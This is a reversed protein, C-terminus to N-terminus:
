DKLDRIELNRFLIEAGELQLAIRGKKLPQWSGNVNECMDTVRNNVKGNIIYTAASGRVIVEIVNWGDQEALPNRVVRRIGESEGQVFLLGGQNLELFVPEPPQPNEAKPASIWNTTKPDVPATVRTYVTYVDGVDGEQIQCEVSRPWVVDAGVVHYLVGSDRKWKARPAFRKGGWKYELRLHYNAYDKETAIYGFPQRSNAEAERYMHIMGDAVQVLHNTDENKNGQGLWVYWGDLNKGNFLSRWGEERNAASTGSAEAALHPAKSKEPLPSRFSYRGSGVEFMATSDEMRIFKVGEAKLVPIGSETITEASKAPVYVTATTNAPIKTDLHFQDDEIKWDSVIRGRISDYEGKAWTFGPGPLPRIVFHQFGPQQEDPNIGAINRWVWEGVSGLAWHNFSNMGAHQFGRGAVYADWREWITTAGMDVMYGWSPVSRLNILRCAEDHRGNRSLELMVRHTTQIGTSLHGKYKAIAEVLHETARPRLAEDLLNFRLALAYGGQTDGRIRGDAAVYKKKFAAKIGQFLQGYKEADEKRGLVQAMKAVIETSHAFFATALLDKPVTVNRPYDLETMDGSLWDGYDGGRQNRWLLGPNNSRVFEIWRRASEFHHQLMRTDAYSQYAQWPVITGADSWAPAFEMNCWALWNLDGPHPALNPFRGDVLQSDRIDTVYKTIFGAMDMNYIATQSFAQFDGMWGFREARQPCDTPVSMMNGRQAWQVCHMIRNVLESSCTFTGADPSASQIVRGVMADETPRETLGTLEVYRFGHYTFHPELTAKGGRWTYENIQAAGRLNATYITGDDNLVEAHRVNIKTGVPANATLRCWGVMNQGMDFVYVGPKPETMKVSRLEKVVRIPENPQAVLTAAKADDPHALVQAPSWGTSVFGPKDWGPMEKTADYTEGFYIGSRRIPGDNTAQWSPDTVIMRMSGDALEIDMRLLLCYQPSELPSEITLPGTWWGGALQAGVANRGKQLLSTVDYTQYQIRKSYRTWEPALLQDGVRQGNIRLEYLGLGTVSVVARKIPGRLEFEKRVMTAPQESVDSRREALLLGDVLNTKAWGGTEVSDSATVTAFKAVNHTNSLVQMEALAFGFNEGDNRAMHTVKLRVHRASTPEFRYIPSEVGPNPVNSGTQDVVTWADSFDPKQAAEIRFRVPFLFGSTTPSWGYTRFRHTNTPGSEVGAPYLRVADIVRVEGLDVTVWKAADSKGLWTLYGYRPALSPPQTPGKFSIWKAEWDSTKLLGMTWTAPKSWPSPEGGNNWARVKWFCQMRSGLPKGAYDVYITQDSNVKGSDWLDGQDSALAEPTSAVIIHYATQKQGREETQLVWSLRPPVADIGLPDTLYECRLGGVIVGALCPWTLCVLILTTFTIKNRM